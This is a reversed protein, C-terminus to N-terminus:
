EVGKSGGCQVFTLQEGCFPCPFHLHATNTM